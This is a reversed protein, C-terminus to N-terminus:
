TAAGRRGTARSPAEDRDVDEQEGISVMEADAEAGEGERDAQHEVHRDVVQEDAQDGRHDRQKRGM